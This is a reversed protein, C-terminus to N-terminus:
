LKALEAMYADIQDVAIDKVTAIGFKARIAELKPKNTDRDAALLKKSAEIAELITFKSETPEAVAPEEAAPEPEKTEAVPEPTKVEVVAKKKAPAPKAEEVPAPTPATGASALVAELLENNRKVLANNTDTAATNQQTTAILQKLLDEIM